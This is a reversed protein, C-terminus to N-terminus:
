REELKRILPLFDQMEIALGRVRNDRPDRSFPQEDRDGELFAWNMPRWFDFWLRNKERISRRLDTPVPREDRGLARAVAGARAAHGAETPHLGDRTPGDPLEVFLAQRKAAVDRCAALFAGKPALVVIRKTRGQIEGLLKDYADRFADIDGKISEMQGFQVFVVTAGARALSRTLPGFNVDRRREFVTDGEWALNRFRVGTAALQEEIFGAGAAMSEGGLFAVTDGVKLEFKGAFPENIWPCPKYWPLADMAAELNATRLDDVLGRFATKGAGGLVLPAQLLIQADIVHVGNVHIGEATVAVHVWQGPYWQRPPTKHAGVRISGDKELTLDNLLTMPGPDAAFIWLGITTSTAPITVRTDVGNFVLAKGGVASDRYEIRGELTAGPVDGDFTWHTQLVVALLLM